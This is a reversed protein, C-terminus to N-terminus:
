HTLEEHESSSVDGHEDHGHSHDHDHDNPGFVPYSTRGLLPAGCDSFPCEYASEFLENRIVLRDCSPCRPM